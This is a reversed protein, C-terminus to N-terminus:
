AVKRVYLQLIAQVAGPMVASWDAAAAASTGSSAGDASTTYEVSGVGVVTRKKVQGAVVTSGGGGSSVSPDFTPWVADFMAWIAYELDAPLSKYGGEYDITVSREAGFTWRRGPQGQANLFVVGATSHSAFQQSVVSTIGGGSLTYVRNIPYRDVFVGELDRDVTKTITERAFMFKRDCYHEAFALAANMAAGIPVDQTADAAALGVRLRGTNVDYAM